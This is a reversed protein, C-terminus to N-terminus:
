PGRRHQGAARPELECGHSRTPGRAVAKTYTSGPAAAPGAACGARQVSAQGDHARAQPLPGPGGISWGTVRAAADRTVPCGGGLRWPELREGTLSRARM